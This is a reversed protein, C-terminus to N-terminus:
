CPSPRSSPPTPAELAVQTAQSHRRRNAALFAAATSAEGTLAAPDVTPTASSGGGIGAVALMIAVFAVLL